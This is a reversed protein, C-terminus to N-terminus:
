RAAVPNASGDGMLSTALAAGRERVVTTVNLGQRYVLSKEQVVLDDFRLRAWVEFYVSKVDLVANANNLATNSSFRQQLEASSEFAKNLRLQAIQQATAFDMGEVAAWIVTASATNVNVKSEQPLLVVYPELQTLTSPSLGWWALEKYTRPLLPANAAKGETRLAALAQQSLVTLEAGPLGLREFLRQFQRLAVSNIQNNSVLNRINLRAQADVIAGSLFAQAADISSDDANSQNNSAQLFTSLRAEALPVSWPESLSDPGGVRADQRLVQRSFDLGGLLLWAAQVRTREAGEVELNRWQQWVASAAITAVLTVTLMAALLAAGRQGRRPIRLRKM